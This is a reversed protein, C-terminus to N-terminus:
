RSLIGLDLVRRGHGWSWWPWGWARNFGDELDPWLLLCPTLSNGIADAEEPWGSFVTTAEGGGRASSVEGGGALRHVDQRRGVLSRVPLAMGAKGLEGGGAGKRSPSEGRRSLSWLRLRVRGRVRHAGSRKMNISLSAANLNWSQAGSKEDELKKRKGGDGLSACCVM